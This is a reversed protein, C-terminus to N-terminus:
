NNYNEPKDHNRRSKLYAEKWENLSILNDNDSDLKRYGTNIFEKASLGNANKDFHTLGSAAYFTEYTYTSREVLGDDDYDVFKFTEKKMPTITMVAKHDWEINDIYGNSDKDFSQFLREGVEAMSFIGDHNVDFVTFDVQNLNPLDAPKVYTQTTVTEARAQPMASFVALISVAFAMHQLTKTM